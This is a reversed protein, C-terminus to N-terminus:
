ATGAPVYGAVISILTEADFPKLVCDVCGSRILRASEAATDRSTLALIPSQIGAERMRAAAQAGDMVPMDVDLLVLHFPEGSAAAREALVVAEGGHRATAVIAGAQRLRTAAVDRYDASDDAVLIRAGRLVTPAQNTERAALSSDVRGTVPLSVVFTTGADKSSEVHIDGGLYERALLRATYLGMGRGAQGRTSFSRKFLQLRVGRPIPSQNHVSFSVSGDPGAEAALTVAEGPHAAELANRVLHGLVQDLLAADSVFHADPAPARIRLVREAAEFTPAFREGASALVTQASLLRLTLRLEGDEAAAVNRYAAIESVLDGALSHIRDALRPDAGGDEQTLLQALGHIGGAMELADGLLIRELVDRRKAASVDRLVVLTFQEGAVDLPTAHVAADLAARGEHTSLRAPRQAPAKSRGAELCACVVGCAGCSESTGCGGPMETAHPCGLVEGLRRGLVDRRDAGVASLLAENCAVIQRQENLVVASEPYGDLLRQVLPQGAIRSSAAEISALDARAAPAHLTPTPPTGVSLPLRPAQM